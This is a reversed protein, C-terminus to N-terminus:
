DARSYQYYGIALSWIMAIGSVPLEKQFSFLSYANDWVIDLGYVSSLPAIVFLAYYFADKYANKRGFYFLSLFHVVLFIHFKNLYPLVIKTSLLFLILSSYMVKNLDTEELKFSKILFLLIVFDTYYFLFSGVFSSYFLGEKFQGEAIGGGFQMIFAYVLILIFIIIGIIKESPMWEFRKLTNKIKFESFRNIHVIKYFTFASFLKSLSLIEWSNRNLWNEITSM